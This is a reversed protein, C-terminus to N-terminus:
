IEPLKIGVKFLRLYKNDEVKNILSERFPKDELSQDSYVILCDILENNGELGLEKYISKLRAYGSLQRADNLYINNEKYKPKYKADIIMKVGRTNSNLLYDPELGQFKKHYIIEKRVSFEERLKKFVYLEFLKTM